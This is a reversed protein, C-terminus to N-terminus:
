PAASAFAYVVVVHVAAVVAAAYTLPIHAFLWGKLLGQWAYQYDLNDKAVVRSEIEDLMERGRDSLYRELGRLERRLRHVPAGSGCLHHAVNRPRAFFPQLRRSYFSAITGSGLEQVSTTALAEVEDALQARFVPIREFLIREGHDTLGRPALRSIAIGFVGTVLLGVFLLWLLTELAGNPWRLGTHMFFLAVTLLGLWLHLQMWSASRALPLFPLKKRLNYAALVVFAIVLLWGTLFSTDRLALFQLYVAAAVVALAVLTVAGNRLRRAALTTM